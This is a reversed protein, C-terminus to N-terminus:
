TFVSFSGHISANNLTASKYAVKVHMCSKYADCKEFIYWRRM